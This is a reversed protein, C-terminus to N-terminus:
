WWEKDEKKAFGLCCLDLFFVTNEFFFIEALYKCITLFIFFTLFPPGEPPNGYPTEGTPSPTPFGLGFGWHLSASRHFIKLGDDAMVSDPLALWNHLVIIM